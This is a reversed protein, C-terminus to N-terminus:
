ILKLQSEKRYKQLNHNACLIQLNEVSHGGGAWRSKKHDVQLLYTSSCQKGTKSDNYQCCGDRKLVHSRTKPTLTKNTKLHPKEQSSIVSGDGGLKTQSKEGAVEKGIFSEALLEILAALSSGNEKRELKHSALDKCKELLEYVDKSVTLEIRVSDDQQIRKKDYDVVQIDLAQALDKQTEQITKGSIKVLLESKLLASVTEAGMKEKEKIARSFEGIQTLNIDGRQIYGGLEPVNRLLRAAEIRRMAASGSYQFEQTLYEYLSSYARELYLKRTDVELIHELILHLLQREKSILNRLNTELELDNLRNLKSM